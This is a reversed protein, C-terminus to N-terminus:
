KLRLSLIANAYKKERLGDKSKVEKFFIKLFEKLINPMM